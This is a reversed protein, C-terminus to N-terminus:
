SARTAFFMRVYVKYGKVSGVAKKKHETVKDTAEIAAGAHLLLHGIDERGLKAAKILM